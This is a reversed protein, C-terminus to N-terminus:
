RIFTNAARVKSLEAFRERAFCGYMMRRYILPFIESTLWFLGPLGRSYVSGSNGDSFGRTVSTGSYILKLADRVQGTYHRTHIIRSIM